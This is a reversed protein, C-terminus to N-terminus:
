KSLCIKWTPTKWFQESSGRTSVALPTCMIAEGAWLVCINCGTVNADHLRELMVVCLYGSTLCFMTATALLPAKTKSSDGFIENVCIVLPNTRKVPLRAQWLRPRHVAALFDEAPALSCSSPPQLTLCPAICLLLESVSQCAVTAPAAAFSVAATMSWIM